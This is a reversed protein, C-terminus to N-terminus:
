GNNNKLQDIFLFFFKADFTARRIYNANEAVFTGHAEMLRVRHFFISASDACAVMGYCGSVPRNSAKPMAITNEHDCFTSQRPLFQYLQSKVVVM